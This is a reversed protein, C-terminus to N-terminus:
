LYIHAAPYQVAGGFTLGLFGVKQPRNVRQGYKEKTM